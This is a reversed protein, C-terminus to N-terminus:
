DEGFGLAMSTFLAHIIEGVVHPQDFASHIWIVELLFHSQDHIGLWWQM